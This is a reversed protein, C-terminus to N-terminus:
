RYKPTTTLRRTNRIRKNCTRRFRSAPPAGMTDSSCRARSGEYQHPWRMKTVWCNVYNATPTILLSEKHRLGKLELPPRAGGGHRAIKRLERRQPWTLHLPPPLQEQKALRLWRLIRPSPSARCRPGRNRLASPRRRLCKGRRTSWPFPPFSPLQLWLPSLRPSPFEARVELDNGPRTVRLAADAVLADTRKVQHLTAGRVLRDEVVSARYIRRRRQAHQM